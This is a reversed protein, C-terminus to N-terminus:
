YNASSLGGPVISYSGVATAGQSTGSWSLSGGLVAPGEGGVFGAYTVENGGHFPTGDYTKTADNATVTLLAPTIRGIAGSATPSALQYGYVTANGDMVQVSVGNITVTKNNGVNKNGYHAAGTTTVTATDAPRLGSVHYNGPGITALTNADYVKSTTGALGVTLTPALTYLVGNGSGAVASVGYTADYQKFNYGLGNLADNIPNQ